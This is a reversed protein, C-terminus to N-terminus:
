SVVRTELWAEGFVGVRQIHVVGQLRLIQLGRRFGRAFQMQRQGNGLQTGQDGGAWHVGGDVIGEAFKVPAVAEGRAPPLEHTVIQCVVQVPIKAALIPKYKHFGHARFSM